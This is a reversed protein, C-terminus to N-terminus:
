RRGKGEHREKGEHRSEGRNGPIDKLAPAPAQPVPAASHAEALLKTLRSEPAKPPPQLKVQVPADKRARQMGSVIVRENESLGEKIARLGQISQGLKVLRYEVKDMEQGKDDKAKKVVYVYKRDQDSLITEEPVLLTKYPIGLPLRIRVFLGSKLTRNPNDFVGRMRVTGTNANLRNDLFNVYGRTTFENENALRMLVPFQLASFWASPGKTTAALDLYTREDVDFYAYMPDETVITTLITQDANVLNGPDVLRRSIRGSLPATVRTFDLYLKARDRAAVMSDISAIAKDRLARIQEYDEPGMAGKSVLERGRDERNIQLAAEAKATKVNAVALNYNAQYERPDIQFLLDGKNVLDGEKFPAEQIYGSVRPRIDVTKFADMRGTFDQYDTVEAVVPTTVIVEVTKDMKGASARHCGVASLVAMLAALGLGFRGRWVARRPRPPFTVNTM